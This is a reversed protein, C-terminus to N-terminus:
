QFRWYVLLILWFFCIDLSSIKTRNIRRNSIFYEALSKTDQNIQL